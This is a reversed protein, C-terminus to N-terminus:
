GACGPCRFGVSLFRIIADVVLGAGTLGAIVGAVTHLLRFLAGPAPNSMAEDSGRSQDIRQECLAWVGFASVVVMSAAARRWGWSGFQFAMPVAVQLVLYFRSPLQTLSLSRLAAPLTGDDPNSV